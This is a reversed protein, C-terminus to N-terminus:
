ERVFNGIVNPVAVDFGVVDNLEAILKCLEIFYAEDLDSKMRNVDKHVWRVNGFVYGCKNDIRDLSADIGLTLALGSYFCRGCQSEWIEWLQEPTVTYELGRKTAGDKLQWLYRGPIDRYGNWNPNDVAVLSCARCKKSRRLHSLTSPGNSSGCYHCEWEWLHHGFSNRGAYRKLVGPGCQEGITHGGTGNQRDRISYSKGKNWPKAVM